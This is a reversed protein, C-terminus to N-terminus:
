AKLSLKEIYNGLEEQWAMLEDKNEYSDINWADIKEKLTSDFEINYNSISAILSTLDKKSAKFYEQFKMMNDKNDEKKAIIYCGAPLNTRFLAGFINAKLVGFEARLKDFDDQAEVEKLKVHRDWNNESERDIKQLLFHRDKIEKVLHFPLSAKAWLHILRFKFLEYKIKLKSLVKKM